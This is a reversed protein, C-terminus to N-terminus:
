KAKRPKRQVSVEDVDVAEELQEKSLEEGEIREEEVLKRPRRVIPDGKHHVPKGGEGTVVEQSKAELEWQFDPSTLVRPDHYSHVFDPNKADLEDLQQKRKDIHRRSVNATPAVKRVTKKKAPM